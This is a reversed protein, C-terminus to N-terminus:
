SGAACRGFSAGRAMMPMIHRSAMGGSMGAGGSGWSMGRQVVTAGPYFRSGMALAEPISEQRLPFVAEQTLVGDHPVALVLRKEPSGRFESVLTHVWGDPAASHCMGDLRQGVHILLPRGRRLSERYASDYTGWVCGGDRMSHLGGGLSAFTESPFASTHEHSSEEGHSSSNAVAFPDATAGECSACKAPSGTAVLYGALGDQPLPPAQPPAASAAGAFGALVLLCVLFKLLISLAFRALTKWDFASMGVNQPGGAAVVSHYRELAAREELTLKVPSPATMTMPGEVPFVQSLGAGTMVWGYNVLEATPVVESGSVAQLIHGAAHAGQELSPYRVEVHEMPPM